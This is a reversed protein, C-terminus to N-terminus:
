NAPVATVSVCSGGDRDGRGEDRCFRVNTELMATCLYATRYSSNVINKRLRGLHGRAGIARRSDM